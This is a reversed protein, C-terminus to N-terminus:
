FYSLDRSGVLLACVSRSHYFSGFLEAEGGFGYLAVLVSKEALKGQGRNSMHDHVPIRMRRTGESRNSFPSSVSLVIERKKLSSRDIIVYGQLAILRTILM